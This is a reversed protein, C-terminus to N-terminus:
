PSSPKDFASLISESHWIHNVAAITDKKVLPWNQQYFSAHFGDSGPASDKPLSFVAQEIETDQPPLLLLRHFLLLFGHEPIPFSWLEQLCSPDPTEQNFMTSYYSFTMNKIEVPDDIWIGAYNQINHILNRNFRKNVIVHFFKTNRAGHVKWNIKARQEWFSNECEYLFELNNRAEELASNLQSSPPTDSHIGSSLSQILDEGQKIKAPLNGIQTKSWSLLASLTSTLKCHLTFGPSGRSSQSWSTDIIKTCYPFHYWMKEFKRLKSKQFHPKTHLLIPSHDSAAIGLHQIFTCPFISSWQLNCFALDIRELCELHGKRKNTWTFTPGQHKINLLGSEDMSEKFLNMGSSSGNSSLKDGKDLIQNFDGMLLWPHHMHQANNKIWTWLLHRNCQEPPGYIFTIYYLPFANTANVKLHCFYMSLDAVSVNMNKKWGVFTRGGTCIADTGVYNLYGLADLSRAVSNVSIKTESLYLFDPNHTLALRKCRQVASAKIFGRCNWSLASMAGHLSRLPQRGLRKQIPPASFIKMRKHVFDLTLSAHPNRKKLLSSGEALKPDANLDLISTSSQKIPLIASLESAIPHAITSIYYFWSDAPKHPNIPFILPGGNPGAYFYLSISQLFHEKFSENSLPIIQWNLGNVDNPHALIGFGETYGCSPGESNLWWNILSLPPDPFEPALKWIFQSCLYPSSPTLAPQLLQPDKPCCSLIKLCAFLFKEVELDCFAQGDYM